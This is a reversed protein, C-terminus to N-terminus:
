HKGTSPEDPEPHDTAGPELWRGHSRCGWWTWEEANVGGEGGILEGLAEGYRRFLKHKPSSLAPALNAPHNRSCYTLLWGRGYGEAAAVARVAAATAQHDAHDGPNRAADHDGSVIWTADASAKPHCQRRERRIIATLTRCLDNWNRYRTSGDVAPLPKGGAQLRSLSRRRHAAFGAGAKGGDACRLFYLVAPGCAYRQLSHGRLRPRSITIPPNGMHQKLALVAALERAEWWGDAQGADGATTHIILLPQQPQALRALAYEGGFLIWDDQHAFVHVQLAAGQLHILGPLESATTSM